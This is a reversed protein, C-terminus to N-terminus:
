RGPGGEGLLRRLDDVEGAPLSEVFGALAASRDAAGALLERMRSAVREDRSEIPLYAYSRGRPERELLGKQWLRVLITMVTTYALEREAALATHVERTTRPGDASWLIDLVQGELEGRALRAVFM